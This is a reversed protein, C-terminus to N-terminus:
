VGNGDKLAELRELVMDVAEDTMPAGCRPCFQYDSYYAQYCTGCKPCMASSITTERVIWEGRLREVQERTPGRLATIAVDLAEVDCSWIDEPDAEDAMSRCHDRLADLQWLVEPLTLQDSHAMAM